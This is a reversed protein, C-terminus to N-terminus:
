NAAAPTSCDDGEWGDVCTCGWLDSTADYTCSGQALEENCQDPCLDTCAQGVVEVDWVNQPSGPDGIDEVMRVDWVAAYDTPHSKWILSQSGTTRPRREFEKEFLVNQTGIVNGGPGQIYLDLGVGGDGWWKLTSLRPLDSGWVVLHVLDQDGTQYEVVDHTVIYECETEATNRSLYLTQSGALDVAVPTSPDFVSETYVADPHPLVEAQIQLGTRTMDGDWDDGPDLQYHGSDGTTVQTLLTGADLLYVTADGIPFGSGAELVIGNPCATVNGCGDDVGCPPNPDPICHEGLTCEVGHVSVAVPSYPDSGDEAYMEFVAGTSGPTFSATFVYTDDAPSTSLGYIEECDGVVDNGWPQCEYLYRYPYQPAETPFWAEIVDQTVQGLDAAVFFGADGTEYPGYTCESIPVPDECTAGLWGPACDCVPTATTADCTGGNACVGGCGDCPRGNLVPETIPDSFSLIWRLQGSQSPVDTPNTDAIDAGLQWDTGSGSVAITSQVLDSATHATVSDSGSAYELVGPTSGTTGVVGDLGTFTLLTYTGAQGLTCTDPMELGPGTTGVCVGSQCTSADTTSDDDDCDGGENAPQALCGDDPDCLGDNCDDDLAACADDDTTVSCVKAETGEACSDLTCAVGDDCPDGSGACAGAGDCADIATCYLGDDCTTGAVAPPETCAGTEPQCEGAETCQSTATCTVPPIGLSPTGLCECADGIGDLDTDLQGSDPHDPCDDCADGIGDGDFDGQLPNFDDPCNDCADGVGDGADPPRCDLLVQEGCGPCAGSQNNATKAYLHDVYKGTNAGTGAFTGSTGSALDDFRESTHDLFVLVVNSLDQSASVDVSVCDSTQVSVTEGHVVQDQPWPVSPDDGLPDSDAQDPNPVERCIDTDDTVGDGDFDVAGDGTIFQAPITGNVTPFIDGNQLNKAEKGNSVAMIEAWGLEFRGSFSTAVLQVTDGDDVGLQGLKLNAKWHPGEPGESIRVREDTSGAMLGYWAIEPGREGEADLLFVRLVPDADDRFSVGSVWPQLPEGWYFDLVPSDDDRSDVIRRSDPADDRVVWESQCGTAVLWLALFGSVKRSVPISCM